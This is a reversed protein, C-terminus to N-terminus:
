QPSPLPAPKYWMWDKTAEHCHYPDARLTRTFNYGAAHSDVFLIPSIFRESNHRPLEDEAFGGTLSSEHTPFFLEGHGEEDGWTTAPYEYMLIFLAPSPVWGTKKGALNVGPAEQPLRTLYRLYTNYFYNCGYNTWASGLLGLGLYDYGPALKDTEPCYFVRASPVYPHFPRNAASLYYQSPARLPDGGGIDPFTLKPWTANTEYIEMPPFRDACDEAYLAFGVGMQRFNSICQTMRAKQKARVLVPLLMAALIAIIAIVVLLEIL